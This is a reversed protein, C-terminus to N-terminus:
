GAYGGAGQSMFYAPDQDYIKTWINLGLKTGALVEMGKHLTGEHGEGNERVNKWFVAAGKRPRFVVGRGDHGHEEIEGEMEGEGDGGNEREEECEVLECYGGKKPVDQLNPFHTGGGDCADDLYVFFSSLREEYPRTEGFWDFHYTFFGGPEYAVVQLTEVRRDSDVGHLGQFALARETIVQSIPLSRLINASRSRRVSPNTGQDNDSTLIQSDHYM